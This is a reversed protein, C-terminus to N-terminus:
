STHSEAEVDGRPDLELAEVSTRTIPVFESREAAPVAAEMGIRHRAYAALLLLCLALVLPFTDAGLLYMLGGVLLPGLTAGIGNLLLLGRTASMINGESMRDHTQAVSLAYLAFSLGGYIAALASLLAASHGKLLFMLGATFAAGICVWFLVLRRDHRDSLHGIPWQLLAGGIITAAVFSAVQANSLGIALAYVASLGWFAGTILGSGLSGWAGVHSIQFLERLPLKSVSHLSPQHVRTLALPILGLCFLMAVLAFSGLHEAGYFVILFQGAGLAGLSVMMYVAFLQGRRHSVQENLWSEIVMYLGLMCIGQVLRLVGWFWANVVMGHLLAVVAATAALTTFARIHGIRAILPPCWHSGLIYGFYFAAMILGITIESFGEVSARLGLLTGLLGSGALLIGMGLLLSCVSYVARILVYEWRSCSISRLWYVIRLSGPGASDPWYLLWLRIANRFIPANEIIPRPDFAHAQAICSIQTLSHREFFM